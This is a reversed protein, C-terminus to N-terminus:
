YSAAHLRRVIRVPKPITYGTYIVLALITIGAVSQAAAPSKFAAAITRFFAKMTISMTFLFLYFISNL